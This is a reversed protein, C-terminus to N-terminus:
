CSSVLDRYCRQVHPFYGGSDGCCDLFYDDGGYYNDDYYYSVYTPFPYIPADYFYWFNDAIFWWGFRGHHRGHHWNGHQWAHREASTFHNYDHGHFGQFQHSASVHSSGRSGQFDRPTGRFSRSPRQFDHSPRSRSFDRSSHNGF